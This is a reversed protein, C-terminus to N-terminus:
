SRANLERRFIALMMGARVQLSETAPGHEAQWQPSQPPVFKCGSVDVSPPLVEPIYPSPAEYRGARFVSSPPFMRILRNSIEEAVLSQVLFAAFTRTIHTRARANVAQNHSLVGVAKASM